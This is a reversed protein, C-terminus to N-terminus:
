LLCAGHDIGADDALRQDRRGGDEIMAGLAPMRVRGEEVAAELGDAAVMLTFTGVFKSATKDSKNQDPEFNGLIAGEVAATALAPTSLSEGLLISVDGVSKGKLFRIAAATLKRLEAPGFATAKGAGAVLIRRPGNEESQHLLTFELPKAAVEGSDILDQPVFPSSAGEFVPVILAGTKLSTNARVLKIDM